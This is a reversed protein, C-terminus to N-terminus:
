RNLAVPCIKERKLAVMFVFFLKLLYITDDVEAKGSRASVKSQGTHVRNVPEKVPDRARPKRRWNTPKQPCNQVRM